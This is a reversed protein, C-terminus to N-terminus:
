GKRIEMKSESFSDPERSEILEGNMDYVYIMGTTSILYDGDVTIDYTYVTYTGDEERTIEKSVTGTTWDIEPDWVGTSESARYLIGGEYVKELTTCLYYKGADVYEYKTVSEKEICSPDDAKYDSVRVNHGNEDLNQLRILSSGFHFFTGCTTCVDEEIVHQGMEIKEGCDCLRWHSDVDRDWDSVAVHKHQECGAFLSVLMVFVILYIGIKKM